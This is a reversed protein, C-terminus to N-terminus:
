HVHINSANIADYADSYPNGQDSQRDDACDARPSISADDRKERSEHAHAWGIRQQAHVRARFAVAALFSRALTPKAPGPTRSPHGCHRRDINEVRAALSM